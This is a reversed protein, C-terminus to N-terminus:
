RGLYAEIVDQNAKIEDPKGSIIIKGANAVHIWDVEERLIVDMDHEIILITLNFQDRLEVIKKFLKETLVPNVGATPEDLLLLEPDNMLVRGLDVLKSQGGSLNKALEYGMHRIELLDLIELAKDLLETERVRMEKRRFLLNFFNEGPQHKPPVMLNELVTLNPYLRTEQYTRSIGLRNIKHTPLSSIDEGKFFIRGSTANYVGSIVNFLTTKGCGNPGILGTISNEEIELDISELAVLGDFEKRIDKIELLIV